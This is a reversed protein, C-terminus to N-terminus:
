AIDGKKKGEAWPLEEVTKSGRDSERDWEQLHAVNDVGKKGKTETQPAYLTQHTGIINLSKTLNMKPGLFILEFM